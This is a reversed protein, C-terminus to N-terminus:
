TADKLYAKAERIEEDAAVNAEQAIALLYWRRAADADPSVGLGRSYIRGLEIQAVFEGAKAASQYLRIAEHQNPPIGLGETYMRALNVMARSAGKNAAASLLRFAESYDVEVEIGDLYCTGLIAQAVVSDSDAQQRLDSINM